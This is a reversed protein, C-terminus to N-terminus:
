TVKITIHVKNLNKAWDEAVVHIVHTGKTMTKTFTWTGGTVTAKHSAGGDVAVKVSKLGTQEPGSDSATGTITVSPGAVKAHNAPSTISLSPKVHDCEGQYKHIKCKDKDGDFIEATAFPISVVAMVLLISMVVM